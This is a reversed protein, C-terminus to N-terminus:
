TAVASSAVHGSRACGPSRAPTPELLTSDLQADEGTSPALTNIGSCTLRISMRTPPRAARKRTACRSSRQRDDRRPQRLHQLTKQQPPM